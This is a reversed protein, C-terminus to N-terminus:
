TKIAVHTFIGRRKGDVPQPVGPMGADGTIEWWVQAITCDPSIPRLQHRTIQMQTDRFRGAHLFELEARLEARGRRHMGVVNVFDCDETWYSTYAAVDHRNWCDQLATLIQEVDQQM